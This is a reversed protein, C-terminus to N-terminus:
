AHSTQYPLRRADDVTWWIPDPEVLCIGESLFTEDECVTIERAPMEATLREREEAGFDVLASTMEAALAHHAGYSNAVFPDLGACTVFASVLRIGGAGMWCLVLHAAVLIRHLLLVGAPTELFAAIEADASAPVGRGLWHQMTTRPIGVARAYQRQSEGRAVEAGRFGEVVKRERVRGVRRPRSRGSSTVDSGVPM